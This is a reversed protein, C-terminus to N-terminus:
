QGRVCLDVLVTEDLSRVALDVFRRADYGVFDYIHRRVFFVFVDDCLGVFRKVFVASENAITDVATNLLIDTFNRFLSRVIHVDVGFLKDGDCRRKDREEFVVIGVTRQHAGVHLTLCDRKQSRLSRHNCRADLMLNSVVGTNQLNCFAVTEYFVDVAVLYDNLARVASRVFIDEALELTGVLGSADVLVGNDVLTVLDHRCLVVLFAIHDTFARDKGVTRCGIM